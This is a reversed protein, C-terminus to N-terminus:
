QLPYHQPNNLRRPLFGDVIPFVNSIPPGSLIVYSCIIRNYEDMKVFNSYLVFEM